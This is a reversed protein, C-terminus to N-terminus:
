SRDRTGSLATLDMVVPIPGRCASAHAGRLRSSILDARTVRVQDLGTVFAQHTPDRRDENTEVTSLLCGFGESTALRACPLHPFVSRGIQITGFAGTSITMSFFIAFPV